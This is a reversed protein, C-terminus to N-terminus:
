IMFEILTAQLGPLVRAARMQETVQPVTMAERILRFRNSFIDRCWLRQCPAIDLFVTPMFPKPPPDSICVIPGFMRVGSFKLVQLNWKM